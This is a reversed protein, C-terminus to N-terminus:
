VMFMVNLKLADVWQKGSIFGNGNTAMNVSDTSDDTYTITIPTSSSIDRLRNFTINGDTKVVCTWLNGNNNLECLYSMEKSPRAGTPLTGITWEGVTLNANLGILGIVQVISGIKRYQLPLVANNNETYNYFNSNVSLTQWGSDALGDHSHVLPAYTSNHNHNSLSYLDSVPHQHDSKAFCNSVGNNGNTTDKLPKKNDSTPILKIFNTKFKNIKNVIINELTM